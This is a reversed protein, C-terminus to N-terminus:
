HRGYHDNRDNRDNRDYRNDRNFQDTTTKVVVKDNRNIDITILQGPSVFMSSNYVVKQTKRFGFSETRYISISHYGARINDLVFTNNLNYMRGDIKVQMLARNNNSISIKSTKPAPAAFTAVSMLVAIFTFIQKMYQKRWNNIQIDSPKSSCNNVLPTNFPEFAQNGIIGFCSYM